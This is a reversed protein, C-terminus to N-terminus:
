HLLRPRSTSYLPTTATHFRGNLEWKSVAAATDSDYNCADDDDDNNYNYCHRLTARHVCAFGDAAQSFPSCPFTKSCIESTEELTNTAEHNAPIIISAGRALRRPHPKGSNQGSTPPTCWSEAKGYGTPTYNDECLSAFQHVQLQSPAEHPM